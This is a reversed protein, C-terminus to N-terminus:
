GRLMPNKFLSSAKVDGERVRSRTSTAFGLLLDIVKGIESCPIFLVTLVEASMSEPAVPFKMSRRSRELSLKTRTHSGVGM